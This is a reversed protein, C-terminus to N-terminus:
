LGDLYSKVQSVKEDPVGTFPYCRCFPNLVETLIKDVPCYEFSIKKTNNVKVIFVGVLTATAPCDKTPGAFFFQLSSQPGSLFLVTVKATEAWSIHQTVSSPPAATASPPPPPAPADAKSGM